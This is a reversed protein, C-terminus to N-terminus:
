KNYKDYIKESKKAKYLLIEKGRLKKVIFNSKLLPNVIPNKRKCKIYLEENETNWNIVKLLDYAEKYNNAMIKLYKRPFKDSYGIIIACAKIQNNEELIFSKDAKKMINNFVKKIINYQNLFKRQRNITIYNDMYIDKYNICYDMFNTEDRKTLYRIM